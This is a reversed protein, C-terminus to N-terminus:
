PRGDGSVLIVVRNPSLLAIGLGYEAQMVRRAGRLWTGQPQPGMQPANKTHATASTVTRRIMAAMVFSSSGAVPAGRVRRGRFLGRRECGHFDGGLAM